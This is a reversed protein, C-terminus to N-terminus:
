DAMLGRWSPVPLAPLKASNLPGGDWVVLRGLSVGRLHPVFLPLCLPQSHLPPHGQVGCEGAEVEWKSPNCAHVVGM